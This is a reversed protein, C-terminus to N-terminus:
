DKSGTAGREGGRAVARKVSRSKTLENKYEDEGEWDCLQCFLKLLKFRAPGCGWWGWKEKGHLHAESQIISYKNWVESAHELLHRAVEFFLVYAIINRPGLDFPWFSILSVIVLLTSTVVLELDKAIFLKYFFFYFGLSFLLAVELESSLYFFFLFVAGFVFPGILNSVHKRLERFLKLDYRSPILYYFAFVMLLVSVSLITTWLFADGWVPRERRLLAAFAVSVAAIGLLLWKSGTNSFNIPYVASWRRSHMHLRGNREFRVFIYVLRTTIWDSIKNAFLLVTIIALMLVHDPWRSLVQDLWSSSSIPFSSDEAKPAKKYHLGLTLLNDYAMAHLYVAPLKEYVPSAAIDGSGQFAAGYFVARHELAKTVETDGISRLLHRVSITPTYPCNLRNAELPGEHVLDNVKSWWDKRKCGMWSNFDKAPEGTPTAWIIDMPYEIGKSKVQKKLDDDLMALAPSDKPGYATESELNYDLVGSVGYEPEMQASVLEEEIPKNSSCEPIKTKAIEATRTPELESRIRGPPPPVALYLPIGCQAFASIADQLALLGPVDKREDVFVFDVFVARPKYALLAELVEAHRKYSVPYIEGFDKLNEERFLVVTTENRRTDPYWYKVIGNVIAQSWPTLHFAIGHFIFCSAGVAYLFVFWISV